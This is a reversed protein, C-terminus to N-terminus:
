RRQTRTCYVKENNNFLSNNYLWSNTKSLFEISKDSSFLVSYGKIYECDTFRYFEDEAYTLDKNYTGIQIGGGELFCSFTFEEIESHFKVKVGYNKKCM